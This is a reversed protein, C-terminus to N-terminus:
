PPRPITLTPTGRRRRVAGVTWVGTLNSSYTGQSPNSSVFTVGAPLLDMVTVGTAANPGINAVSIMFTITEGVNPTADSVVKTVALDAQQPTETASASDNGTAPDFQDSHGITATNTQPGPSVVLATITLTATAGDALTGVVWQGLFEDYTGQGPNASVFSLGAPLLDDVTVGTAADPGSNSLTVTFTIQDNVNPTADSVSKTLALDSQQPTETASASDNATNPDFQDAATVTATNTQALPSDVRAHILLTASAGSELTGVDWVQTSFTGRRILGNVLTLGPPLDDTVQVGTATDPGNNTVTVTFTIIDGVNPTADSM